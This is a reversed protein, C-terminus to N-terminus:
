SNTDDHYSTLLLPSISSYAPYTFYFASSSVSLDLLLVPHHTIVVIFIYFYTPRLSHFTFPSYPLFHSSTPTLVRSHPSFLRATLLCSEATQIPGCLYKRWAAIINDFQEKKINTTPDNILQLLLFQDKEADWKVPMNATTKHHHKPPISIATTAARTDRQIIQTSSSIFILTSTSLLFSSLLALIHSTLPSNTILPSPPASM